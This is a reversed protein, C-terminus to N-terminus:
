SDLQLHSILFQTTHLNCSVDVLGSERHIVRGLQAKAARRRKARDRVPQLVGLRRCDEAVLQVLGCRAANTQHTAGHQGHGHDRCHKEGEPMSSASRTAVDFPFIPRNKMCSIPSLICCSVSFSEVQKQGFM